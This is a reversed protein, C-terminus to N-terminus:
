PVIKHMATYTRVTAVHHPDHQPSFICKAMVFCSTLEVAIGVKKGDRQGVKRRGM